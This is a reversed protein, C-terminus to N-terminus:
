CGGRAIASGAIAGGGAGVVTGLGRDYPGSLGNGILGGAIAGLVAGATTDGRCRDYSRYGRSYGRDVYVQQEYTRYARPAVFVEQEYGYAPEVYAPAAYYRDYAPYGYAPAYAYGGYYSQNYRRGDRDYRREGYERSERHEYGRDGHWDGRERDGHWDGQGYGGRNDDRWDHAAAPAAATGLTAAIAAATMLSRIM